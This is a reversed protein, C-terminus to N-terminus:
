RVGRVRCRGRPSVAFARTLSNRCDPRHLTALESHPVSEGGDLRSSVDATVTLKRYVPDTEIWDMEVFRGDGVLQVPHGVTLGILNQAPCGGAGSTSFKKRVYPLPHAVRAQLRPCIKQSEITGM